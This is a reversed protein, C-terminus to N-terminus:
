GHALDLVLRYRVDNRELREIASNVETAPLVEVDATVQHEACFDLLEQTRLTGASGSASLNRAGLLAMPDVQYREPLGLMCVTGGARVARLYPSPDHEVSITDLILDLRGAQDTM